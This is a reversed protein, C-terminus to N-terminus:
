QKKVSDAADEAANGVQQAADGVNNAAGAIANDKATQSGSVSSFYWIGAIVAILLVIGILWGSGGGSRAGDSIVTTHTTHAEGTPTETTTIHEESM